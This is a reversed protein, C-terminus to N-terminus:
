DFVRSNEKIMLSNFYWQYAFSGFLSLMLFWTQGMVFGIIALVVIVITFYTLRKRHDEKAPRLFTGLPIATSIFVLAALSLHDNGLIFYLIASAIALLLSFGVYYSMKKEIEDLLLKGYKNFTLYLNMIPDLLWTSIFLAIILYVLPIFAPYSKSLRNFVQLLVYAGIIVGWSGKGSLRASMEGYKMLMRYPWFRSKLSESMVMRALNNNPDKSLAEKSRELAEKVKGQRLLNHAHNAITYPNEPDLELAEKVSIKNDETGLIGQVMIKLNYAQLNEPDLELAKNAAELARDYNNESLKARARLLFADSDEPDMEILIDIKSNAKNYKEDIIDIDASLAIVIPVDPYAALLEDGYIRSEEKDGNNVLAVTYYYKGEFSNPDTALYERLFDKAETFRSQSFLLDIRQRTGGDM